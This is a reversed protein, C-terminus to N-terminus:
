YFYNLKKKNENVGKLYSQREQLDIEIAKDKDFM